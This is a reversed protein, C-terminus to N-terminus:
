LDYWQLFLFTSSIFRFLLLGNSFICWGRRFLYRKVKIKKILKQKKIKLNFKVNVVNKNKIEKLIKIERL